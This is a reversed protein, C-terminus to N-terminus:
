GVGKLLSSAPCSYQFILYGHGLVHLDICQVHVNVHNMATHLRELPPEQSGARKWIKNMRRAGKKHEMKGGEKEKQLRHERFNLRGTGKQIERNM